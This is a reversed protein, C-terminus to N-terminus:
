NFTKDMHALTNHTFVIFKQNTINFGSKFCLSLAVGFGMKESIFNIMVILVESACKCLIFSLCNKIFKLSLLYACAFFYFAM